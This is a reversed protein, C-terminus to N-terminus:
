HKNLIKVYKKYDKGWDFMSSIVPQVSYGVDTLTYESKTNTTRRTLLNDQELERLKSTLVKQTIGTVNKKLESFRKTGSLLESIILIKWHCGIMRITVELPKKPLDKVEMITYDYGGTIM